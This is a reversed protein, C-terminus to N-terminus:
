KKLNKIKEKISNNSPNLESAKQYHIIANGIDGMASLIDGMHEQVVSSSANLDLSKQTYTRANMYDKLRFYIWGMTDLYNANNPEKQIAKKSMELAMSLNEGRVSLNYAYNNLVLANDPDIELAKQYMYDSKDYKKMSNYLLGLTSLLSIDEPNVFLARELYMSAEDPKGQRQLVLGFLYNLRFEEPYMMVGKRAVPEARDMLGKDFYMYGVQVYAERSTDALQLAKEFDAVFSDDGSSIKVVGIYFYPKWEQPYENQIKEFVNKTIKIASKEQSIMSVFIEGVQVKEEYSLTDKGLASAFAQFGKDPQGTLFYLKVLNNQLKKDEPNLNILEEYIKLSQEYKGNYDYLSALRIRNQMDYPDTKIIYELVRECDDFKNKTAYIDYLRRLVDPDFGYDDTIKEYLVAAKDPESNEEYLRALSYVVSYDESDNEMLKLYIGIAEDTKALNIYIDAKHMLFEPNNEEQMLAKNIEVLAEQFKKLKTYAQSLAFHIGASNDYKLALLYNEASEPYKGMLDATKGNIFYEKALDPVQSYINAQLLLVSLVSIIAIKNM